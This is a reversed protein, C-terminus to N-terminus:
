RTLVLQRLGGRKVAFYGLRNGDTDIITGTGVAESEPYKVRIRVKASMSEPCEPRRIIGKLLPNVFAQARPSTTNPRRRYSVSEKADM